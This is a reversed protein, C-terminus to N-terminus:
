KIASFAQDLDAIIDEADELGVSLRVLGDTIGAKLREKRPIAAHTMSAPHQILTEIGGLSVALLCLRLRNMVKEGAVFGGKLEFSLMSGPGRMQKRALTYQPHSPLGPYRVFAVKKNKELWGAIKMANEQAKELRVSLTQIGRLALFAQHPDMCFGMNGMVSRLQHHLKEEKTVIIGGVVDAHGNLFKTISHFVVDAGLDLPNQLCPSSFTNDVALILHHKRALAACKRIDTLRITPNSPTEIFLLRTNPKLARTIQDTDSTDVYSYEVGFRSFHNEMIMRSQGYVSSTSIMHDGQNLFTIYITTVASMGSSTAIGAYGNELSTVKEELSRVTPNSLRTYLFGDDRGAFLDAGHKANRLIFTSTQYIPMIASGFQDHISGAHIM